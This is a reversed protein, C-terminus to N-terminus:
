KNQLDGRVVIILKLKDLSGDSQIKSKHVDMCPTVPEGKEPGQVLFTQNSIKKLNGEYNGKALTEQHRRIIQDHRCLTKPEPILYSFELGYEGLIPLAQSINDVVAKFVRHLVKCM